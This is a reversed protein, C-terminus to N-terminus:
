FELKLGEGEVPLDGRQAWEHFSGDYVRVTEYGLQQLALYGVAARPGYSCYTVVKDTTLLGIESVTKELEAKPKLFSERDGLLSTWPLNIAKPIRGSRIETAVKGSFEDYSRLDVRRADPSDLLEDALIRVAKNPRVPFTKHQPKIPRYLIQGGGSTWAELYSSLVRVDHHGLYELAWAVMSSSQGDYSDYLAVTTDPDIGTNGFTESLSNEPNLILTKQDLIKSLPLNVAGSIHGSLYKVPPRPDVIVVRPDGTHAALWSSDILKVM